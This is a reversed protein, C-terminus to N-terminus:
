GRGTHGMFKKDKPSRLKSTEQYDKDYDTLIDIIDLKDMQKFYDLPEGYAGPLERQQIAKLLVKKSSSKNWDTAM